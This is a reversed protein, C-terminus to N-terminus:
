PVGLGLIRAVFAWPPCVTPANKSRGCDPRPDYDTPESRVLRTPPLGKVEAWRVPGLAKPTAVRASRIHGIDHRIIDIGDLGKKDSERLPVARNKPLLVQRGHLEEHNLPCERLARGVHRSEGGKKSHPGM